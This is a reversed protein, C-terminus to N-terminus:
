ECRPAVCRAAWGPWSGVTRTCTVRGWLRWGVVCVCLLVHPYIVVVGGASPTGKFPRQTACRALPNPSGRRVSAGGNARSGTEKLGGAAGGVSHTFCGQDLKTKPQAEAPRGRRSAHMVARGEAEKSGRGKRRHTKRTPYVAVTSKCFYTSDVDGM